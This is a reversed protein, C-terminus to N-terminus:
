RSVARSCPIVAGAFLCGHHGVAATPRPGEQEILRGTSPAMADLYRLATASLRMGSLGEIGIPQGRCSEKVVRVDNGEGQAGLSATDVSGTLRWPNAPNKAGLRPSGARENPEGCAWRRPRPSRMGSVM